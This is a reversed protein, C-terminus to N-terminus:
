KIKRKGDKIVGGAILLGFMIIVGWFTLIKNIEELPKDAVLKYVNQKPNKLYATFDSATNVADDETLNYNLTYTYDLTEISICPAKFKEHVGCYGRQVKTIDSLKIDRSISAKKDFTNYERYICKNDAKSCYFQKLIPMKIVIVLPIIVFLVLATIRLVLNKTNFM